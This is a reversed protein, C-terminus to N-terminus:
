KNFWKCPNQFYIEETNIFEFYGNDEEYDKRYHGNIDKRCDTVDIFGNVSNIKLTRIENLNLSQNLVTVEGSILDNYFTGKTTSISYESYKSYLGDGNAYGSSWQGSFYIPYNGGDTKTLIRLSSVHGNPIGNVFDGWFINDTGCIAVGYGTLNDLLKVGDFYIIEGKSVVYFIHGLAKENESVLNFFSINDIEAQMYVNKLLDLYEKDLSVLNENKSDPDLINYKEETHLSSEKIFNFINVNTPYNIRSSEINISFYKIIGLLVIVVFIINIGIILRAKGRLIVMLVSTIIGIGAIILNIWELHNM